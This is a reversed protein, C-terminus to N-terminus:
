NDSAVREADSLAETALRRSDADTMSRGILKATAAITLEVADRRMDARAKDIVLQMERAHRQRQDEIEQSAKALMDAAAAAAASRAEVVLQQAEAQAKAMLAKNTETLERAAKEVGEARKLSDAIRQARGSLGAAIPGWALKWLLVVLVIFICWAWVAAAVNAHSTLNLPSEEPGGHEQALLFWM